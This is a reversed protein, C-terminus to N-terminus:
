FGDDFSDWIDRMVFFKVSDFCSIKIQDNISIRVFKRLQPHVSDLVYDDVSLVIKAPVTRIDNM